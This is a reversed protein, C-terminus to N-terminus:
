ALLACRGGAWVAGFLLDLGFCLHVSGVLVAMRSFGDLWYKIHM